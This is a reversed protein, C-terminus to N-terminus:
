VLERGFEGVILYRLSDAAENVKNCVRLVIIRINGVFSIDFTQISVIVYTNIAIGKCGEADHHGHM